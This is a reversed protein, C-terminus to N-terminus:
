LAFIASNGDSAVVLVRAGSVADLQLQKICPYTLYSMINAEICGTIYAVRVIGADSSLLRSEREYRIAQITVNANWTLRDASTVDDACNQATDSDDKKRSEAENQRTCVFRIFKSMANFYRFLSTHRLM